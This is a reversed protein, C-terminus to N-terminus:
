CKIQYEAILKTIEGQLDSQNLPNPFNLEIFERCRSSFDGQCDILLCIGLVETAIQKLTINTIPKARLATGFKASLVEKDVFEKFGYKKIYDLVLLPKSVDSEEETILKKIYSIRIPIKPDIVFPELPSRLEHLEVINEILSESVELVYDEFLPLKSEDLARVWELLQKLPENDEQYTSVILESEISKEIGILFTLIDKLQYLNIEEYVVIFMKSLLDILHLKYINLAKDIILVDDIIGINFELKSLSEEHSVYGQSEFLENIERILTVHEPIVKENIFELINEM